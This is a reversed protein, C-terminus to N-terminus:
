SRARSSRLYVAAFAFNLFLMVVAISSGYGIEFTQFATHYAYLAIVETQNGPGGNTLTLILLFTGFTSITITLLTILGIYRLSPVTHDWFRQWANAGDVRAAEYISTPVTKLAGLFIIMTFAAGRWINVIIASLLPVKGLWDVPGLGLAHLALNLSGYYYDFMAVWLFGAILTPNVWALLASGYAVSALRFGRHEAHDILLPLGIGLVFQGIVASGVVFIISTRIVAFFDPDSLLHVYNQLGVFRPHAADVGTLSLNTLSSYVAWLAPGVFVLALLVTAPTLGVMYISNRHFTRRALRGM